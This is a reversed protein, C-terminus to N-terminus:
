RGPAGDMDIQPSLQRLQDLDAAAGAADLRTVLRMSRSLRWAGIAQWPWLRGAATSRRSIYSREIQSLANAVHSSEWSLGPNLSPMAKELTSLEQKIVPLLPPDDRISTILQALALLAAKSIAIGAVAMPFSGQGLDSAYAAAHFYGDAAARRNGVDQDLQGALVLCYGLIATQPFFPSGQPEGLHVDVMWDCHTCQLGDSVRPSRIKQCYQRFATDATAPDDREVADRVRALADHPLEALEKFALQYSVAANQELATDTVNVRRFTNARNRANAIIDNLNREDVQLFRAGVMDTLITVVLASLVLLAGIIVQKRIM